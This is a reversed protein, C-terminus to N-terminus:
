HPMMVAVADKMKLIIRCTWTMQGGAWTLYFRETLLKNGKNYNM